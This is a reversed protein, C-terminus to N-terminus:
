FYSQSDNQAEDVYHELTPNHELLGLAEMKMIAQSTSDIIDPSDSNPTPDPCYRAAEFLKSTSEELHIYHPPHAKVWVFGAEVFSAAYRARMDKRGYRTPNFGVVPINYTFLESQLSHGSAKSEVVVMDPRWEKYLSLATKRLEPFEMQKSFVDLLMVQKTLSEEDEFVGWTTCANSCSEPNSLFATDWSQLVFLFKPDYSKRWIRFWDLEFIGGKELIPNQQLQAEIAFSRNRFGAKLLSVGKENCGEPWLLEGAEKRPDEWIAGVKPLFVTSCKRHPDFEMPLCVHVWNELVNALLHGSADNPHCRQQTLLRRRESLLTYRTTLVYSIVDNTIDRIRTSDAHRVNNPDDIMLLKAGLGTNGGGITTARREGRKTTRILRKTQDTLQVDTGWLRKYSDSNIVNACSESDRDSLTEAYSTCLFSFDPEKSWVWAPYGVMCITSKAMRPPLNIILDQIELRYLAELHDCIADIHWGDKFENPALVSWMYKIFFKLSESCKGKIDIDEQSYEHSSGIKIM